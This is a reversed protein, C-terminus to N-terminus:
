QFILDVDDGVCIFGEEDVDLTRDINLKEDVIDTLQFVEYISELLKNHINENYVLKESNGAIFPEIKKRRRYNLDKIYEEYDENHKKLVIIMEVIARNVADLSNIDDSLAGFKTIYVNEFSIPEKNCLTHEIRTMSGELRSEKQKDYIKLYGHKNRQGWYRTGKHLGPEKRSGYVKVMTPELPVDIAYDHKNMYGSTCWEKLFEIFGQFIPKDYHKNPNVELKLLPFVYWTKSTKDFERYRGLSIYIGDELHIHNQYWAWKQCAACNMREWYNDTIYQTKLDRVKEIALEVSCKLYYTIIVNDISHTYGYEDEISKYYKIM